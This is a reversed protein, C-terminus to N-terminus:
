GRGETIVYKMRSIESSISQVLSEYELQTRAFEISQADGDVNNGDERMSTSKNEVVKAAVDSIKNSDSSNVAKQLLKEFEVSKAKYGPTDKNAINDSIVQQRLWLADLSKQVLDMNVGGIVDSM